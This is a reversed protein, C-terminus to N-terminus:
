NINILKAANATSDYVTVSPDDMDNKHNDTLTGPNVFLMKGFNEIRAAHDHGSFVRGYNGYKVLTGTIEAYEGHYVAIKEGGIRFFLIQM